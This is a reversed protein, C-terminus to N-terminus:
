TPQVRKLLLDPAPMIGGLTVNWATAGAGILGEIVSEPSIAPKAHPVRSAPAVAAAIAKPHM